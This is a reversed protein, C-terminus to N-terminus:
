NKTIKNKIITFPLLIVNKIGIIFIVAMTWPYFVISLIKWVIEKRKFWAIFEGVGASVFFFLVMGSLFILLFNKVTVDYTPSNYIYMLAILLSLVIGVGFTLKFLKSCFVNEYKNLEKYSKNKKVIGKIENLDNKQLTANDLFAMGGGNFHFFSYQKVILFSQIDALKYESTDKLANGNYIEFLINKKDITYLYRFERDGFIKYAKRGAVIARFIIVVTAILIVLMPIILEYNGAFVGVVLNCFFVIDVVFFCRSNHNGWLEEEITMTEIKERNIIFEGTM